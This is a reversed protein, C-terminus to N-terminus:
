APVVTEVFMSCVRSLLAALFAVSSLMFLSLPYKLVGERVGLGCPTFYSLIGSWGLSWTCVSSLTCCPSRNHNRLALWAFWVLVM